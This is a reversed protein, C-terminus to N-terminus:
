GGEVTKGNGTKATPPPGTKDTEPPGGGAESAAGNERKGGNGRKRGSRRGQKGTKVRLFFVTSPLHYRLQQVRPAVADPSSYSLQKM